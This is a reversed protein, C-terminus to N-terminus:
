PCAVGGGDTSPVAPVAIATAVPSLKLQAIWAAVPATMQQPSFETPCAVGGGDTFPLAPVAAAIAAPELWAQAMWAPVLAATQQPTM